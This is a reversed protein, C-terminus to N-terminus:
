LKQFILGIEDANFIDKLEYSSLITLLQKQKWNLTMDTTCSREKGSINRFIINHRKELLIIM